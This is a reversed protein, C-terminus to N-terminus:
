LVLWAPAPTTLTSPIHARGGRGVDYGERGFLGLGRFREPQKESGGHGIALGCPRVM